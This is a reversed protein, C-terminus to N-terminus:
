KRLYQDFFYSKNRFLYNCGMKKLYEFNNEELVKQIQNINSEENIEICIIYVISLYKTAGFLVDLDMGETDISLFSIWNVAYLDLISDLTVIPVLKEKWIYSEDQLSNSFSKNLFSSLVPAKSYVFKSLRVEKGCGFPLFIDRRRIFKFLKIFEENPEIIIGSMGSRYLLYTNSITTPHNAGIDIYISKSLDYHSLLYKVEIDEKYQSYSEKAPLLFDKYALIFRKIKGLSPFYKILISRLRLKYM